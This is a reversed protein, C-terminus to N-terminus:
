KLNTVETQLELQVREMASKADKIDELSSKLDRRETELLVVKDTLYKHRDKGKKISREYEHFINQLKVVCTSDTVCLLHLSSPLKMINVACLLDQKWLYTVYLCSTDCVGLFCSKNTLKHTPFPSDTGLTASDLKKILLSAHSYGTAPSDADDTATDSSQTLEDFDEAMEVEERDQIDFCYTVNVNSM